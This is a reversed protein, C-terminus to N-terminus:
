SDGELFNCKPCIFNTNKTKDSRYENGCSICSWFVVGTRIQEKILDPLTKSMLVVIDSKKSM